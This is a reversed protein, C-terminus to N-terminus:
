VGMKNMWNVLAATNRMGIKKLINYRHAEVTKLAINLKYGIQRSTLGQKILNVVELERKSLCHISYEGPIELKNASIMDRVDSCFFNEGANVRRIAESLEERSTNTTLYGKAGAQILKKAHGEIALRSVGIVQSSASYKKIIVTADFGNVPSMNINILVIMPKMEKAIAVAAHFTDVAGIVQFGEENNLVASWSERILRHSDVLLLTIPRFKQQLSERM